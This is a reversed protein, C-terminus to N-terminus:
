ESSAVPHPTPKPVPKSKLAQIRAEDQLRQEEALREDEIKKREARAREQRRKEDEEIQKTAEAIQHLEFVHLAADLVRQHERQAEEFGRKHAEPSNRSELFYESLEVRAVAPSHYSRRSASSPRPGRSARNLPSSSAM